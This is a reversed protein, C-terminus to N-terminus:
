SAKKQVELRYREIEADPVIIAVLSSDRLLKFVKIHGRVIANHLGQRTIGLRAAAGGPSVGNVECVRDAPTSTLLESYRQLSMVEYPM